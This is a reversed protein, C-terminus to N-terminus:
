LMDPPQSDLERLQEALAEAYAMMNCMTDLYKWAAARLEFLQTSTVPGDAGDLWADAFYALTRRVEGATLIPEM